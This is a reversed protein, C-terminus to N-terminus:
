KKNKNKKVRGHTSRITNNNKFFEKFTEIEDSNIFDESENESEISEVKSSTSPKSSTSSKSTSLEYSKLKKKLDSIDNTSIRDFSIVMEPLDTNLYNYSPPAGCTKNTKTIVDYPNNEILNGTRCQVMSNTCSQSTSSTLLSSDDVSSRWPVHKSSSIGEVNDYSNYCKAFDYGSNNTIDSPFFQSM